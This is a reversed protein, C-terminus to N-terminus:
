CEYCFTFCQLFFVFRLCVTPIPTKIPFENDSFKARKNQIVEKESTCPDGICQFTQTLTSPRAFSKQWKLDSHKRIKCAPGTLPQARYCGLLESCEGLTREGSPDVEQAMKLAETTAIDVNAPVVM